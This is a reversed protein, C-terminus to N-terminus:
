SALSECFIGMPAPYLTPSVYSPVRSGDASMKIQCFRCRGLLAVPKSPCRWGRTRDTLFWCEQHVMLPALLGLM